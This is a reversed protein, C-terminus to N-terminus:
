SVGEKKRWGALSLCSWGGRVRGVCHGSLITTSKRAQASTVNRCVRGLVSLFEVVGQWSLWKMRDIWDLDSTWSSYDNRLCHHGFAPATFDLMFRSEQKRFTHKHLLRYCTQEIDASHGPITSRSSFTFSQISSSGVPLPKHALMVRM